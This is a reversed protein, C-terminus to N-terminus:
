CSPTASSHAASLSSSSVVVEEKLKLSDFARHLEMNQFLQRHCELKTKMPEADAGTCALVIGTPLCCDLDGYVLKVQVDQETDGCRISYQFKLLNYAFNRQVQGTLYATHREQLQEAQYRRSVYANLADCLVDLFRRLDQQLYTRAMQELPIFAPISHRVIKRPHQVQINLYYSELYMGEYATSICFAIGSSPEGVEASIGTLHFSELIDQLSEVREKLLTNFVDMQDLQPTSVTQTQALIDLMPGASQAMVRARLSDRKARLTQVVAKEQELVRARHQVKVQESALKNARKELKKLHELVGSYRKDAM